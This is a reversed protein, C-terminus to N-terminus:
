DTIFDSIQDALDERKRNRYDESWLEIRDPFCILYLVATEDRLETRSIGLHAFERLHLKFRGNKEMKGRLFRETIALLPEEDDAADFDNAIRDREQLVANDESFQRVIIRGRDSLEVSTECPNGNKLWTIQNRGHPPVVVRGRSDIQIVSVTIPGPDEERLWDETTRAM